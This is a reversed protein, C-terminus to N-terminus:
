FNFRKAICCVFSASLTASKENHCLQSLNRAVTFAATMRELHDVASNCQSRDLAIVQIEQETPMQINYSFTAYYRQLWPSSQMRAILETATIYHYHLPVFVALTCVSDVLLQYGLLFGAPRLWRALAPNKEMFEAQIEALAALIEAPTILLSSRKKGLM